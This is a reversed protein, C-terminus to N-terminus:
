NGLTGIKFEALQALPRDQGGHQNDFLVSGDTGCLQLIASKGGPHVGIWGTLDYVNEHIITWCNTETNHKAVDSLKYIVSTEASSIANSVIKYEQQTFNNEFYVFIGMLLVLILGLSSDKWKKM